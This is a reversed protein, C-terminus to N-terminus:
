SNKSKYSTYSIEFARSVYCKFKVFYWLLNQCLPVIGHSEARIDYLVGIYISLSYIYIIRVTDLIPVTDVVFGSQFM